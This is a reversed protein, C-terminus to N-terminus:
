ERERFVGKQFNGTLCTNHLQTQVISFWIVFFYGVIDSHQVFVLKDVSERWASISSKQFFFVLVCTAKCPFKEQRTLAVSGTFTGFSTALRRTQVRFFNKAQPHLNKTLSTVLPPIKVVKAWKV